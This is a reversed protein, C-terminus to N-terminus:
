LVDHILDSGGSTDSGATSANGTYHLDSAGSLDAKISGDCHIYANSAGSLDGKCQDCVFGYRNGNITKKLDSSGSLDFMFSTVQGEMTAGSDGSFDLYLTNASLYGQYYSSGSLDMEVDDADIDCYFDSAGSLDVKVKQGKLGYESHFESAGSLDVSTLNANYPLIVTMDSGSCTFIGRLYIKLRNDVVEVVVKPMINEGATVTIQTAADSVTVNFADHVELETYAADISFDKSIPDGDFKSCSGLAFLVLASLVVFYKKMKNYGSNYVM